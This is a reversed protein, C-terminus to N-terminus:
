RSGRLRPDAIDRISDGLLNFGLVTLSIAIGPFLAWWIHIPFSTRARSIDTGWSPNPTPIGLGLFSLGSELLIEAGLGVTALVIGLPLVNPLLHRFLIRPSSAGITRAAEIYQNNRESLTAGRVIRIPPFITVLLIVITVTTKSPSLITVLILLIILGPFAIITDVTRQILNDVWGGFYGSTIGIVMGIAVGGLVSIFGVLLSIRAGYIVRSLMDRGIDDTGFPHSLSPDEFPQGAFEAETYPALRPLELITTGGPLSISLGPGFLGVFFLGAVVILGFAGLPNNRMLRLYRRPGRPRDTATAEELLLQEIGALGTTPTTM